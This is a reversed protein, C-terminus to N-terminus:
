IDGMREAAVSQMQAIIDFGVLENWAAMLKGFIPGPHGDGLPEGNLRTVPMLCYPTSSTFAEDADLVDELRLEAAACTIGLQGALELVVQQSVGGLTNDPPPTCIRRDIVAFFNGTSTEALGGEHDLVLASANKDIQRAQQDALYWHLRSRSKIRPDLCDAPIQRVKPVVVHQGNRCKEDWLEFPLPFTHACVTAKAQRAVGTAGVYTTNLGATVFIVIGLDHSAPLLRHNNDLVETVVSWMRDRTLGTEFGVGDISRSLRALHEELRFPQHSFTRIMETVAAGMVLGLDFISLKAETIPVFQGDLYAIPETM